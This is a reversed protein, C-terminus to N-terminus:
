NVKQILFGKMLTEAQPPEFDLSSRLYQSIQFDKSKLTKFIENEFDKLTWKEYNCTFLIQGKSNLCQSALSLLEKLNTEIKWISTKNRGFSPPDCIILDFTRQRKICGKLFLLSDQKFFDFKNGSQILEKQSVLENTTGTLNLEFNKKGWDLFVSSVDVSIVESAGGKAACVSFGCTYSFLNLVKKHLSNNQVWFRQDAQDLFLGPSLGQEARLEYHVGNETISWQSPAETSKILGSAAANGVEGRNRMERIFYHALGYDKTFQEVAKIEEDNPETDKYWYIWLTDNFVDATFKGNHDNEHVLRYTTLGESFFLKKQLFAFSLKRYIEHPNREEHTQMWKEEIFGSHLEINLIPLFLRHAHLMLRPFESGNYASDGLIPLGAFQAHLRIQHTKGSGLTAKYVYFRNDIARLFSFHTVSFGPEKSQAAEILALNKHIQAQTLRPPKETIFGTVSFNELEIKKDTVFLYEKKCDRHEFNKILETASEKSKAFLLVGSTTQDLRHVVFLKKLHVQKKEILECVGMHLSDQAHTNFGYPKDVAIFHEHNKIIQPEFRFGNIM